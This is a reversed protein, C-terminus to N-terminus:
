VWADVGFKDQLVEEVHKQYDSLLKSQLRERYCAKTLTFVQARMAEQAFWFDEDVTNKLLKGFLYIQADDVSYLKIAQVISTAWEVILQKLGYRQNLFTFMFQEMTERPQRNTFCQDDYKHKANVIEIILDKAQKLSHLKMQAFTNGRQANASHSRSSATGTFNQQMISLM